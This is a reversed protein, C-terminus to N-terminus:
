EMPSIGRAGRLEAVSLRLFYSPDNRRQAEAQWRQAQSRGSALAADFDHTSIMTTEVYDWEGSRDWTEWALFAHGPVFVLAPNLTAAELLSAMLVSGDACNASKTALSERPLRVRQVYEGRGAGYAITSNIYVIQEVKLANYLARVQGEATAASRPGQYGVIAREPHLDAARRLLQMVETVNPTVWAAYYDSLDTYAGTAPDEIGNYATTHALLWIPFTSEQETKRDLDDITIHLTARTLETVTALRERFFTPLHHIEAENPGEALLEVTSIAQASYGEVCSTLRLRAYTDGTYKLKFTVLPKDDANFLHIIGTPVHSMRLLAQANIHTTSAGMVSGGPRADAATSLLVGGAAAKEVAQRAAALRRLEAEAEALARSLAPPAAAPDALAYVQQALREVVRRQQYEAL